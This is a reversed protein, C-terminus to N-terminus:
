ILPGFGLTRIRNKLFDKYAQEVAQEYSVADILRSEIRYPSDQTRYSVSGGRVSPLSGTLDRGSFTLPEPMEAMSKSVSKFVDLIDKGSLGREPNYEPVTWEDGVEGFSPRSSPNYEFQRRLWDGM